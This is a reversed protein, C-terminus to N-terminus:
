SFADSAGLSELRRALQASPTILNLGVGDGLGLLCGSFKMWRLVREPVADVSLDLPAVLAGGGGLSGLTAPHTDFCWVEDFGMFLNERNSIEGARAGRVVLYGDQIMCSPDRRAIARVVPLDGVAVSSDLSTVVVFEFQALADPHARLLSGISSRLNDVYCGRVERM